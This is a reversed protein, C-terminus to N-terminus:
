KREATSTTRSAYQISHIKSSANRQCLVAGVDTDSANIKVIFPDDFDPSALVRPAVAEQELEQFAVNAEDTQTCKEKSAKLAHSLASISM